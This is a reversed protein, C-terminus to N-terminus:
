NIGDSVRLFVYIAKLTILYLVMMFVSNIMKLVAHTCMTYANTILNMYRYNFGVGVIKRGFETFRKLEKGAMTMVTQQFYVM